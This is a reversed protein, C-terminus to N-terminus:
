AVPTHSALAAGWGGHWPCPRPRGMYMQSMSVLVLAEGRRRWFREPHDVDVAVLDVLHEVHREANADLMGPITDYCPIIVAGRGDDAFEFRGDRTPRIPALGPMGAGIYFEEPRESRLKRAAPVDPDELWFYRVSACHERLLAIQSDFREAEALTELTMPVANMAAVCRAAQPAVQAAPARASAGTRRARAPPKAQSPPPTSTTLMIGEGAGAGPAVAM